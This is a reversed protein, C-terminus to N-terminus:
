VVAVPQSSWHQLNHPESLSISPRHLRPFRETGESRRGAYEFQPVPESTGALRWPRVVHKPLLSRVIVPHHDSGASHTDLPLRFGGTYGLFTRHRVLGAGVLAAHSASGPGSACTSRLSAVDVHQLHAYSRLCKPREVGHRGRDGYNSRRHSINLDM